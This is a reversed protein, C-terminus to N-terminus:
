ADITNGRATYHEKLRDVLIERNGDINLNAELLSVRLSTVDLCEVIANSNDKKTRNSDPVVYPNVMCFKLLQVLLRPSEKIQFWGESEMVSIADSAYVKMSTEKLLPCSHSDSRVLWDPANSVDLFTEAIKSEVHLKLDTCELRDAALLLKITTNKDEIRPTRVCYVFELVSEFIDGEM